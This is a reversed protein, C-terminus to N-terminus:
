DTLLLFDAPHKRAEEIGQQLAWLKGSWGEPLPPAPRVTRREPDSLFSATQPAIIATGDHSHENVLILSLEVGDQSLLSSVSRNVVDAENRAPVIAVVRPAPGVDGLPPSIHPVMWFGGRGFLLYLWILLCLIGLAATM